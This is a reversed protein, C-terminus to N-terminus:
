EYTKEVIIPFEKARKEKQELFKSYNKYSELLQDLCWANVTQASLKYIESWYKIGLISKQVYLYFIYYNDDKMEIKMRYRM